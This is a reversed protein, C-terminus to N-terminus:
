ASTPLTWQQWARDVVAMAEDFGEDEALAGRLNLFDEIKSLRLSQGDLVAKIEDGEQLQLQKLLSGPLSITEEDQSMIVVTM